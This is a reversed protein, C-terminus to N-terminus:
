HDTPYRRRDSPSVPRALNKRDIRAQKESSIKESLLWDNVEHYVAETFGAIQDLTYESFKESVKESCNNLIDVQESIIEKSNKMKLEGEGTVFFGAM